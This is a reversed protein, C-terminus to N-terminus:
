RRRNISKRGRSARSGPDWLSAPMSDGSIVRVRRCGSASGHRRAFGGGSGQGDGAVRRNLGLSAERLSDTGLRLQAESLDHRTALKTIYNITGGVAGAGYLFSSPGGIAEVRDYIWSDVPRAAISYQVNIGNFMQGLSGSGFGGAPTSPAANFNVLDYVNENYM